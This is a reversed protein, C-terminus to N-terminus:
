PSPNVSEQDLRIGLPGRKVYMEMQKNGRQIEVAVMENPDGETTAQRLDYWSYVPKGAYQLIADGKKIGAQAAPSNGLTGDVIVRNPRGTAYLLADYATEGLDNRLNRTRDDLKDMEDRFRQSAMWGERQARDRLYLKDMEVNEYLQTINDAQAQSMGAEKLRSADVWGSIRQPIDRNATHATKDERSAEDNNASDGANASVMQTLQKVQSALDDVQKELNKRKSKETVLQSIVQELNQPAGEPATELEAVTAEAIVPKPTIPKEVSPPQDLVANRQSVQEPKSEGQVLMIVVTTIGILLASLIFTSSKM